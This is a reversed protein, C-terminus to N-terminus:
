LMVFDGPTFIGLSVDRAAMLLNVTM